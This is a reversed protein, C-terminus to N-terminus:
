SATAKAEAKQGAHKGESFEETMKRNFAPLDAPKRSGGAEEM